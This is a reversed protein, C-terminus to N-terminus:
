RIIMQKNSVANLYIRGDLDYLEYYQTTSRNSEVDNRFTGNNEFIKYKVSFYHVIVERGEFVATSQAQTRNVEIEYLMQMTFREPPEFEEIYYPTLFARYAECDGRVIADFYQYFFESAVGLTRYNEETLTEGSDYELYRVSRDLRQYAPDELINRDYDAEYFQYGGLSSVAPPDNRKSLLHDMLWLAGTLLLLVLLAAAVVTVIRKLKERDSLQRRKENEM